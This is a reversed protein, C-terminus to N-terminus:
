LRLARTGVKGLWESAGSGGDGEVGGDGTMGLRDEAAGLTRQGLNCAPAPARGPTSARRALHEGLSGLLDKGLFASALEKRQSPTL